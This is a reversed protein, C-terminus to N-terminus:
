VSIWDTAIANEHPSASVHNWPVSELIGERHIGFAEAHATCFASDPTHTSRCRASDAGCLPPWTLPGGMPGPANPLGVVIRTDHPWMLGIRARFWDWHEGASLRRAPRCSVLDMTLYCLRLVLYARGENNHYVALWHRLVRDVTHPDFVRFRLMCVAVLTCVLMCLGNDHDNIWRKAITTRYPRELLTQLDDSARFETNVQQGLRNVQRHVYRFNPGLLQLNQICRGFDRMVQYRRPNVIGEETIPVLRFNHHEAPDYLFFTCDTLDVVLLTAHGMRVTHWISGDGDDITVIEGNYDALEEPTAGSPEWNLPQEIQWWCDIDLPLVLTPAPPSGNGAAARELCAILSPPLDWSRPSPRGRLEADLLDFATLDLTLGFWEPQFWGTGEAALTPYHAVHLRQFVWSKTRQYSALFTHPIPSTEPAAAHATFDRTTAANPAFSGTLGIANLYQPLLGSLFAEKPTAM